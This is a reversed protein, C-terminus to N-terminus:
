SREKSKQEEKDPRGTFKKQLVIQIKKDFSQYLMVKYKLIKQFIFM